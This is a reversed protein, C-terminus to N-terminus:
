SWASEGIGKGWGWEGASSISELQGKWGGGAGEAEKLRRGCGVGALPLLLLLVEAGHPKTSAFHCATPFTVALVCGRLTRQPCLPPLEAMGQPCCRGM